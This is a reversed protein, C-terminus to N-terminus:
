VRISLTDFPFAGARTYTGAATLANPTRFKNAKQWLFFLHSHLGRRIDTIKFLFISM